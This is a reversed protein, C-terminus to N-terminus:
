MPPVRPPSSYTKGLIRDGQLIRSISVIHGTTVRRVGGRGDVGAVM